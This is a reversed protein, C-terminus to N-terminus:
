DSLSFVMQKAHAFITNANLMSLQVMEEFTHGLHSLVMVNYQGEMRYWLVKPIGCIGSIVQYINYEQKLKSGWELAVELKVAVDQGKKIDRGLYVM